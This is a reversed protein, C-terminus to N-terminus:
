LRTRSLRYTKCNLHTYDAATSKLSAQGIPLAIIDIHQWASPVNIKFQRLVPWVQESNIIADSLQKLQQNTDGRLAAVIM